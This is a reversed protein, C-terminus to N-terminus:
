TASLLFLWTQVKQCLCGPKLSSICSGSIENITSNSKVPTGSACPSLKSHCPAPFGLPFRCSFVFFMHVEVCSSCCMFFDRTNIKLNSKIKVILINLAFNYKFTCTNPTALHKQTSTDSFQKEELKVGLGCTHHCLGPRVTLKCRYNRTQNSSIYQLAIWEHM